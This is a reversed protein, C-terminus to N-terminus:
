HWIVVKTLKVLKGWRTVSLDKETTM